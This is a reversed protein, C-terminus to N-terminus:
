GTRQRVCDSLPSTCLTHSSTSLPSLGFCLCVAVLDLCWFVAEYGSRPISRSVSYFNWRVLTSLYVSLPRSFFLTLYSVARFSFFVGILSIVGQILSQAISHSVSFSHCLQCVHLFLRIPFFKSM